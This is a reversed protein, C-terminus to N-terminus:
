WLSHPCTRHYKARLRRCVECSSSTSLTEAPSPQMTVVDILDAYGGVFKAKADDGDGTTTSLHNSGHYEHGESARDGRDSNEDRDSDADPDGTTSWRLMPYLGAYVIDILDVVLDVNAHCPGRLLADLQLMASRQLGPLALREAMVCCWMAMVCKQRPDMASSVIFEMTYFYTLLM